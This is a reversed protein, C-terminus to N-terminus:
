ESTDLSPNTCREVSEQIANWANMYWPIDEAAHTFDDKEEQKEEERLSQPKREPAASFRREIYNDGEIVIEKRGDQHLTLREVKNVVKGSSFQTTKSTMQVTGSSSTRIEANSFSLRFGGDLSGALNLRSPISIGAVSRSQVKGLSLIYTFPDYISYGIGMQRRKRGNGPKSGDRTYRSKVEPLDDYGGYKYIHDYDRKRKEDSLIAYASTITAFNASAIQIEEESANMRTLRDPHLRMALKRYSNKIEENSADHGVGLANYPDPVM